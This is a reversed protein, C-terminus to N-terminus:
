ASRHDLKITSFRMGYIGAIDLAARMGAEDCLIYGQRASIRYHFEPMDKGEKGSSRFALFFFSFYFVPFPDAGFRLHGGSPAGGPPGSECTLGKTKNKFCM